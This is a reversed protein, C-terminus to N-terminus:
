INVCVRSFESLKNTASQKKHYAKRFIYSFVRSLVYIVTFFYIIANTEKYIGTEKKNNKTKKNSM